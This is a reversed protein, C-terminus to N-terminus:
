QWLYKEFNAPKVNLRSCFTKENVVGRFYAHQMSKLFLPSLIPRPTVGGKKPTARNQEVRDHHERELEACITRYNNYSVKKDIYLRIYLAMRSIHMKNSLDAIADMHYDHTADVTHIEELVSCADGMIFSYAFDNCWRETTNKEYAQSIDKVDVPEIEEQRLLYHGLEHALTFIERKYNRHHKLVIMNPQLYFGDINSKEKKNWTEVYEFVFLGNDACTRILGVLLARANKSNKPYLEKRVCKAVQMPNDKVTYHELKSEVSLRSLRNYADIAQKLTEFRQVTRISEMNLETGFTSKRFFVSNNATPQLPTYDQYFLLGKDFVKDIKKLLGLEITDGCLQEMRILKKRGTNLLSLLGDVSMHYLALLYEIREKNIKVKNEM